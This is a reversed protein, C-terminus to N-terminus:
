VVKKKRRLRSGALGALGTGLLLMSAPEPVPDAASVQGSRAALGYYNYYKPANSSNGLHLGVWFAHNSTPSLATASWILGTMQNTDFNDAYELATKESHLDMLEGLDALGWSDNSDWTVEYTSDIDYTLASGLRAGWAMQSNWSAPGNNYDLWILDDDNDYILNYYESYEATRETAGDGDSDYGATGITILTAQALGVMGFMFM